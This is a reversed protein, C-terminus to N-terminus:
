ASKRLNWILRFGFFQISMDATERAWLVHVDARRDLDSAPSTTDIYTIAHAASSIATFACTSDAHKEVKICMSMVILETM